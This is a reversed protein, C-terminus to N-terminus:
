KKSGGKLSKQLQLYRIERDKRFIELEEGLKPRTSSSHRVFVVGNDNFKTKVSVVNLSPEIKVVAVHYKSNTDAEIKIYDNAGSSLLNNVLNEILLMYRDMNNVRFYDMDGGVGCEYGQDNVGIYLTGGDANLFGCIISAIERNQREIDPQMHNDAPYVISSKFEVYQSETGYFKLNSQYFNVNLIAGIQKLINSHLTDDIDGSQKQLNLMLVKRILNADEDSGASALLDWLRQNYEPHGINAVVFLRTYLTRLMPNRAATASYREVEAVNISRNRAFTQLLVLLDMHDNCLSRLNDDSIMTALVRAFGLYNYAKIYDASSFALRRIIAILEEVQEYTIAEEAQIINNEEDDYIDEVEVRANQLLNHIPTLPAFREEPTAIRVFYGKIRNAYSSESVKVRVFNKAELEVTKDTRPVVVTYGSESLCMFSREVVNTIVCTSEEGYKVTEEIRRDITELMNFAINGEKDIGQVKAEFLLYGGTEDDRFDYIHPECFFRVINRVNLTGNGEFNEDVITCNCEVRDFSVREVNDVRITVVDDVNPKIKVKNARRKPESQKSFLAEEIDQWMSKFAKIDNSKSLTPVDIRAFPDTLIQLNQWLNLSNPIIARPRRPSGHRLLIGRSSIELFNNDSSYTNITNEPISANYSSVSSLAILMGVQRLDKWSFEPKFQCGMTCKFAKDLLINQATTNLYSIYRYYLARNRDINIDDREHDVILIQIAIATIMKSIIANNVKSKFNVIEDVESQNERIYIETQRVFSSRFPEMKWNDIDWATLADFIQGMWDHIFQPHIRLITNFTHFQSNPNYIYGSLKLHDFMRRIFEKYDGGKLLNCARHFYNIATTMESLQSRYAQKENDSCKSIYDSRELLTETAYSLVNLKNTIREYDVTESEQFWTPIIGIFYNIANILWHVDGSNYQEKINQSDDSNIFRCIWIPLRGNNFIKEKVDRIIWFPIDIVDRIATHLQLQVICGRIGIVECEVTQGMSLKVGCDPLRFYLGNEDEVEYFNNRTYDAKIRFTYIQGIKYFKTVYPILDLVIFPLDRHGNKVLCSIYEPTPQDIQFKLKKINYEKGDDTHVVYYNINDSHHTPLNYINGPRLDTSKM